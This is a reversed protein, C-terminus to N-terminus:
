REIVYRCRHRAGGRRERVYHLENALFNCSIYINRWTPVFACIQYCHESECVSQKQNGRYDRYSDAETDNMTNVNKWIRTFISPPLAPLATVVALHCRRFSLPFFLCIFFLLPRISSYDQLSLPLVDPDDPLHNVLLWVILNATVTNSTITFKAFRLESYVTTKM